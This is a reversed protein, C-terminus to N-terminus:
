MLAMDTTNNQYTHSLTVLSHMVLCNTEMNIMPSRLNECCYLHVNLDEPIHSTM